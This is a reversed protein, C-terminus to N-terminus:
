GEASTWSTAVKPKAVWEVLGERSASVCSRQGRREQFHVKVEVMVGQQM